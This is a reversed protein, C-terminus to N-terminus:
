QFSLTLAGNWPKLGAKLGRSEMFTLIVWSFPRPGTLMMWNGVEALSWVSAKRISSLWHPPASVYSTRTEQHFHQLVVEIWSVICETFCSPSFVFFSLSFVPGDM